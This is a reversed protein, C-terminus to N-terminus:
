AWSEVFRTCAGLLQNLLELGETDRPRERRATDIEIELALKLSDALGEITDPELAFSGSCAGERAYRLLEASGASAGQAAAIAIDRFWADTDNAADLGQGRDAAILGEGSM